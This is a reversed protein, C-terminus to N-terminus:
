DRSIVHVLLFGVFVLLRGADRAGFLDLKLAFFPFDVYIRNLSLASNMTDQTIWLGATLSAFGPLAVIVKRPTSLGRKWPTTSRALVFTIFSIWLLAYAVDHYFWVDIKLGHFPIDVFDRKLIVVSNM